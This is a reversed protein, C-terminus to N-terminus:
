TTPDQPMATTYAQKPHRSSSFATNLKGVFVLKRLNRRMLDDPNRDLLKGLLHRGLFRGQCLQLIAADVAALDGRAQGNRIPLTIEELELRLESTLDDEALLLEPSKLGPEPSKAGPEPSKLGPEPSKAGPEPSGSPTAGSEQDFSSEVAPSAMWRFLDPQGSQGTISYDTGRGSGRSELFGERVLRGLLKTLDAPHTGTLAHLRANQVSGEQIATVLAYREQTGLHRFRKGFQTELQLLAQPPLLSSMRLEIETRDPEQVERLEPRRWHEGAWNQYIKPLGSGAHDGYGVLQFMTQLRRNRCDSTGGRIADEVPIRMLGPNRFGFLGPQKIVLVSARGTFDAHVLTNVLAERLAEHVPTDEIRQGDQLQFPAKLDATLKPYVRRFFDYLNGSWSGDPVIRDIWRTGSPGEPREQYDVMYFPLVDRIVEARGFLLLGAVRLGASGEERNIGLAGIRVLFAEVPLDSWVHGPKVASFRNRYAAVTEPDLDGFGFGKLVREDRSDEVREALMRRVTEDDAPYDGEHRRIYTNGFPNNGLHVPKSQRRARPVVVRLVFKGEVAVPQIDREALLNASVKQRNNLNDWIDKRVRDIELIGCAAFQGRPQEKIGLWITGGDANAMGCYSKWFDEPLEGSGDRGQAAKCETEVSEALAAIDELTLSDMM